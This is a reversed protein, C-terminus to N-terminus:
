GELPNLTFFDYSRCTGTDFIVGASFHEHTGYAADRAVELGDAEVQFVRWGSLGIAGLERCFATINYTTM